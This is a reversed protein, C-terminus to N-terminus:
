AQDIDTRPELSATGSPPFGSTTRHIRPFAIEPIAFAFGVVQHRSTSAIHIAGTFDIECSAARIDLDLRWHASQSGCLSNCAITLLQCDAKRRPWVIGLVNVPFLDPFHELKFQELMCTANQNELLEVRM